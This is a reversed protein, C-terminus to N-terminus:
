RSVHDYSELSTHLGSSACLHPRRWVFSVTLCVEPRYADNTRYNLKQWNPLVVHDHQIAQVLSSVYLWAWDFEQSPISVFSFPQVVFIQPHIILWTCTSYNLM